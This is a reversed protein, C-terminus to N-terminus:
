QETKSIELPEESVIGKTVVQSSATEPKVYEFTKIFVQSESEAIFKEEIEHEELETEGVIETIGSEHREDSSVEDDIIESVTERSDLALQIYKEYRDRTIYTLKVRYTGDQMGAVKDKPVAVSWSEGPELEAFNGGYQQSFANINGATYCVDCYEVWGDETLYEIKGTMKDSEYFLLTSGATNLVSIVVNDNNKGSKSVIDVSLDESQWMIISFAMVTFAIM